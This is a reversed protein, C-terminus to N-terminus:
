LESEEAKTPAEEEDFWGDSERAQMIINESEEETIGLDNLMEQLEDSALDALDTLTKINNEGLKVLAAGVGIFDILDQQINMSEITTQINDATVDVQSQAKSHITKAVDPTMGEILLLRELSVLAIDGPSMFGERALLRAVTDDVDLGSRLTEACTAYQEEQRQQAQEETIIDLDMKLLQSALRVNQGRRGIALSLQDQAVFVEVKELSEKVIVRQVEAPQLAKKVMTSADDIYEIIDIKEGLLEQVVAQVRSGRMGVCSGVPDLGQENAKVCIKARSGPDRAVNVIEIAGEDIEPVQEKFLQVLFERHTRSLFIQPGRQESRVDYIYARLRDGRRYQERGILESRSVFGEAMGLDLTLSNYEARKVVGSVIEGVRDKYDEFQRRREAERVKQVIVQKATQAAIRGFAMAPLEEVFHDGVSLNPQFEKVTDLSVQRASNEVHAETEVIEMYRALKAAGTDSDISARVDFETGYQSTAARQIATELVGVVEETSLGKERAVMDVVALINSQGAKDKM